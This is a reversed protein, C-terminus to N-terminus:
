IHDLSQHNYHEETRISTKLREIPMLSSDRVLLHEDNVTSDLTNKQCNVGILILLMTILIDKLIKREYLFVSPM